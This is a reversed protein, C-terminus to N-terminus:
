IRRLFAINSGTEYLPTYRYKITHHTCVYISSINLFFSTCLQFTLGVRDINNRYLLYLVQRCQKQNCGAIIKCLFSEITMPISELSAILFLLGPVLKLIKSEQYVSNVEQGQRYTRGRYVDHHVSQLYFNQKSSRYLISLSKVIRCYMNSHRVQVIQLMVVVMSEYDYSMIFISYEYHM